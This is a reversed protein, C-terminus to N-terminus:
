EFEGADLKPKKKAQKERYLIWITTGMFLITGGFWMIGITAYAIGDTALEPQTIEILRALIFSSAWGLGFMQAQEINM